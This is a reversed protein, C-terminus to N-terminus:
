NRSMIGLKEGIKEGIKVWFIRKKRRLSLGLKNKQGSIEKKKNPFNTFKQDKYEIKGGVKQGFFGKKTRLSLGLKNKQGSFDKKEKFNNM